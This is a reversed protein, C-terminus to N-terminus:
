IIVKVLATEVSGHLLEFSTQELSVPSPPILSRLYVSIKQPAEKFPLLYILLIQLHM